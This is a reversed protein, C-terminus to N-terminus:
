SRRSISNNITPISPLSRHRRTIPDPKMENISETQSFAYIEDEVITKKQKCHLCETEEKAAPLLVREWCASLWWLYSDAFIYKWQIALWERGVRHLTLNKVLIVTVFYKLFVLADYDPSRDINSSNNTCCGQYVGIHRWLLRVSLSCLQFLSSPLNVSYAAVYLIHMSLKVKFFILWKSFSHKM